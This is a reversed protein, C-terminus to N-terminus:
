RPLNAKLWQRIDSLLRATPLHSRNIMLVLIYRSAPPAAASGALEANVAPLTYYGAYCRVGSMSGSKLRLAGPVDVALSQLTGEKGALPISAMFVDAYASELCMYRLVDALFAPSFATQPALGCADKLSCGSLDLGKNKWFDLMARLSAGASLPLAEGLHWAAHRALYETLLNNSKFNTVKIIESLAPSTQHYLLRGQSALSAMTRSIDERSQLSAAFLSPLQKSVGEDFSLVEDITVGSTLLHEQWLWRLSATPNPNDARVRFNERGAPISGYVRRKAQYPVGYVYASDKRNNAALVQVDFQFSPLSPYMSQLLVPSGVAGSRLHLDLANEYVAASYVGAAYYNGLDEWIWYPSVAQEDAWIDLLRVSGKLQRIGAKQLAATWEDLFAFPHEYFLASGLSPDGLPLIWLNGHLVGDRVQGDHFLYTDFRHEPGMVELATATSFLKVISASSLLKEPQYAECVRGSAADMLLYSISAGRYDQGNFPNEASLSLMSLLLGILM